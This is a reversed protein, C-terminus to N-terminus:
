YFELLKKAYEGLSDFKVRQCANAFREPEDSNWIRNLMNKLVAPDGVSFLWGNQGDEILEPIGGRDSGLVPTGHMMSEIVSFPCNENCESPCVSFRAGRIVDELEKGKLFGVNKVNQIGCLMPELPGGGAFVFPIHPLERCAELLMRLGKEESYRGFYLVYNGKQPAQPAVPEVFNRLVVTKAALMPNTDLAQKMFLSPCVIVDISRYIKRRNWYVAEATGLGSRLVSHHICRERICNGFSGHLCKDCVQHKQPSYMYHNPCVLQPDHATYVVQIRKRHTKRYEEVALLISPTLQYNFNNIHLVDPQFAALIKGIKKKAEASYVLKFPNVLNSRIGQRHFDLTGTYLNWRNGVVNDPHHMGFYEVEHGNASWYAGLKFTYTEAGGAPHLFKNVMLIKLETKGWARGTEETNQPYTIM